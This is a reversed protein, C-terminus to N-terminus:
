AATQILVLKWVTGWPAFQPLVPSRRDCTVLCGGHPPVTLCLGAQPAELAHVVCFQELSGLFYPKPVIPFIMEVWCFVMFSSVCM